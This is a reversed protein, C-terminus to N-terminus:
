CCCMFDRGQAISGLPHLYIITLPARWLVSAKGKSVRVYNGGSGFGNINKNKSLNMLRHDTRMWHCAPLREKRAPQVTAPNVVDGLGFALFNQGFNQTKNCVIM